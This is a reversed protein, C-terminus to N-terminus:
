FSHRSFTPKSDAKRSCGRIVVDKLMFFLKFLINVIMLYSGSTGELISKVICWPRQRSFSTIFDHNLNLVRRRTLIKLKVEGLCNAICDNFRITIIKQHLYRLVFLSVVGVAFLAASSIFYLVSIGFGTAVMGATLIGILAASSGVLQDVGTIRGMYAEPTYNLMIYSLLVGLVGASFGSTFAPIYVWIPSSHPPLSALVCISAAGLIFSVCAFYPAVQKHYYRKIMGIGLLAGAGEISLFYGLANPNNPLIQGLYYAIQTNTGAQILTDLGSLLIIVLLVRYINLLQFGNKLNNLWNNPSETTQQQNIPARTRSTPLTIIVLIGILSSIADILVCDWPSAILLISAGLLPVIIKNLNAIAMFYSSAALLHDQAANSKLCGDESPGNISAVATRLFMLLLTLVLGVNTFLILTIMTMLSYSSLLLYKRNIRDAIVGAFPSLIAVPLTYCVGLLSMIWPSSHWQHVLIVQFAFIDFWDGLGGLVALALLRIFIHNTWLNKTPM